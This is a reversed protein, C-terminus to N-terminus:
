MNIPYANYINQSDCRKSISAADAYPIVGVFRHAQHDFGFAEARVNDSDGDGGCMQVLKRIDETKLRKAVFQMLPYRELVGPRYSHKLADDLTVAGLTTRAPLLRWAIPLQSDGQGSTRGKAYSQSKLLPLPDVRALQIAKAEVVSVHRSLYATSAHAPLTDPLPDPDPPLKSTVITQYSGNGGFIPGNDVSIEGVLVRALLGPSMRLSAPLKCSAAITNVFNSHGSRNILSRVTTVLNKLSELPELPNPNTWSGCTLSSISRCAYGRATSRTMSCRLFEASTYGISQKAPNMRCGFDKCASLISACNRLTMACIYVDDGTHLSDMQDFTPAGIAARIYAANLVSNIFTTGRHGSMLTGAAKMLKGKYSIFTRDFSGVLVRTMSSPLMMYACLEEFVMAMVENSHHSNFDDYDLMLNVGGTRRMQRIKDVMGVTGGSGPDLLVRRNRWAKQVPDLVRAFSFYSLTDCAYIARTKGHELKPSVSVLTTGDWKLTPDQELSESAMKRYARQHTEKWRSSDLKLARDSLSNETGNVCWLWRRDWWKDQEELQPPNPMEYAIIARVHERLSDPHVSITKTKVLEPDCRYLVDSDLNMEGVGRGQLTVAETLLAGLECSNCGLAKLANSLGKATAASSVLGLAIPCARSNLKPYLVSCYILYNCAQDETLQGPTTTALYLLSGPISRGTHFALRSLMLSNKTAAAADSKLPFHSTMLRSMKPDCSMAALLSRSAESELKPPRISTPFLLNLLSMTNEVPNPLQLPYDLLLLSVAAPLLAHVRALVPTLRELALLQGALDAGTLLSKDPCLSLVDALLPGLPGYESARGSSM